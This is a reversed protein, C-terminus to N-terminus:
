YVEVAKRMQGFTVTSFGTKVHTRSTIDRVYVTKGKAFFWKFSESKGPQLIRTYRLTPSLAKDIGIMEVGRPISTNNTITLQSYGGQLTGPNAVIGNRTLSMTVNKVASTYRDQRSQSGAATALMPIATMATLGALLATHVLAKAHLKPSRM